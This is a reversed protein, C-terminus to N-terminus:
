RQFETSKEIREKWTAVLYGCSGNEVSWSGLEEEDM